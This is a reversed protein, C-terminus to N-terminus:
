VCPQTPRFDRIKRRLTTDRNGYPRLTSRGDTKGCGESFAQLQKTAEDAMLGSTM